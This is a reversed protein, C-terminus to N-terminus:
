DEFHEVADSLIGCRGCIWGVIRGRWSAEGAGNSSGTDMREYTHAVVAKCSPCDREGITGPLGALNEIGSLGERVTRVILKQMDM